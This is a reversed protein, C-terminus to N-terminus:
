LTVLFLHVYLLSFSPQMLFCRSTVFHGHAGRQEFCACIDRLGNRTIPLCCWSGLYEGICVRHSGEELPWLGSWVRLPCRQWSGCPWGRWFALAPQAWPLASLPGLPRPAARHGLTTAAPWLKGRAGHPTGAWLAPELLASRSGSAPQLWSGCLQKCVPVSPLGPPYPFVIDHACDTLQFRRGWQTHELCFVSFACDIYHEVFGKYWWPTERLDSAVMNRSACLTTDRLM